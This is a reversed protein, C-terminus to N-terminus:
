RTPRRPPHDVRMCRFSVVTLNPRIGVPVGTALKAARDCSAPRTRVLTAHLDLLHATPIGGNACQEGACRFSVGKLRVGAGRRTEHAPDTPLRGALTRRRPLWDLEGSAAAAKGAAEQRGVM